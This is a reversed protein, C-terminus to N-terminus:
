GEAEAGLSTLAAGTLGVVVLYVGIDFLLATSAKVSGLLPLTAEVLASELFASGWLGGLAGVAVATLLGAGLLKEPEAGLFGRVRAAGGAVYGLVLAVAAVLGGSFGGGPANHGAFLLYLSFAVATRVVTALVSDLIVSRRM